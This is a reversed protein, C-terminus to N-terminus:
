SQKVYTIFRFSFDIFFDIKKIVFGSIFTLNNCQKFLWKIEIITM